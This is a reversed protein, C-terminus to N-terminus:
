QYLFIKKWGYLFKPLMDTTALTSVLSSFAGLLFRPNNKYILISYCSILDNLKNVNLHHIFLCDENELMKYYYNVQFNFNQIIIPFYFFVTEFLGDNKSLL